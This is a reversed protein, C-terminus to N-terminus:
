FKIKKVLSRKQKFDSAYQRIQTVEGKKNKIQINHGYIWGWLANAKIDPLQEIIRKRERHFTKLAQFGKNRDIFIKNDSIRKEIMVTYIERCRNCKLVYMKRATFDKIDKLIFLEGNKILNDCCLVGNFFPM